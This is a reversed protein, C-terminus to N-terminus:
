GPFGLCSGPRAPGFRFDAKREGPKASKSRARSRQEAGFRPMWGRKLQRTRKNIWDQQGLGSAMQQDLGTAVRLLSAYWKRNIAASLAAVGRGSHRPQSPQNLFLSPFRPRSQVGFGLHAVAFLGQYRVWGGRTLCAAEGCQSPMEDCSRRIVKNAFARCPAPSHGVVHAAIRHQRARSCNCYRGAPERFLSAHWARPFGAGQGAWTEPPQWACRM